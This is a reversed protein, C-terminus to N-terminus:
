AAEVKGKLWALVLDAVEVWGSDITLSHGRGSMMRLETVAPSRRYQRLTGRTVAPPVIHDHEGAILLLPGRAGNATSVAAASHPTFNAFAAQFLPRGPGPIAWRAYLAASEAASVANGFGYRFQAATLAVARRRNAPNRLVPFASRLTSFPLALVGKIPAADIAVGAAAIGRGLLNQVILGGFSHGVLIPARELGAITRAYHDAIEAIGYGAGSAPNARTEEVTASVGPWSRAVPRYGAGAFREVWRTWSTGHMWLGPIFVVPLPAVPM